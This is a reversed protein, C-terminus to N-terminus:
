APSGTLMDEALDAIAEVQGGRIVELPARGDFEENPM